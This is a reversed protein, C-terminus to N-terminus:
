EDDCAGLVARLLVQAGAALDEPTASEAENHSIGGACPVFIMAAPAVRAIAIADHAAGSVIDRHTLGEAQAAARVRAVLTPDFATAPQVLVTKLEAQLGEAATTEHVARQLQADMADRLRDDPHRLELTMRVEGPIVNRSNPAIHLEGVTAVGGPQAEAIRRLADVLRAAGVLADRRGAMPTSGAHAAQGTLRLDYWRQGQGGTVVGITCRERELVPGQEIHAEFYAAIRRNGLGSGRGGIRALEDGYRLGDADTRALVEDVGLLGAFAMSGMMAPAFRTGEENSWVVLEFPRATQVAADDLARLVELAAIVGYAGDFRGGNPQTDLHSGSMVVAARPDPGARRAFLTGVADTEIRCGAQECWRVLQDRARRDDDSLALRCVGGGPTAGIAALAMLTDWLRQADIKPQRM